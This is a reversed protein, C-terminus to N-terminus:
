KRHDAPTSSAPGLDALVDVTVTDTVNAQSSQVALRIVGVSDGVLWSARAAGTSDTTITLQSSGCVSQPATAVVGDCSGSLVTFNVPYNRNAQGSANSLVAVVRVAADGDAQPYAVTDSLGVTLTYALAQQQSVATTGDATSGTPGPATASNCGVLLLMGAIHPVYLMSRPM